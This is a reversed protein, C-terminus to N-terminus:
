PSTLSFSGAMMEGELTTFRLQYVRENGAIFITCGPALMTSECVELGSASANQYPRTTKGDGAAIVGVSNMWSELSSLPGSEFVRVELDPADNGALASEAINPNAFYVSANPAPVLSTLLSSDPLGIVFNSPYAVSFGYASDFYTSWGSPVPQTQVTGPDTQGPDHLDSVGAETQGPPQDNEGETSVTTNDVIEYAPPDSQVTSVPSVSEAAVGESEAPTVEALAPSEASNSEQEVMLVPEAGDPSCAVLILIALMGVIFPVVRQRLM